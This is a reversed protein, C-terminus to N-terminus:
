LQQPGPKPMLQPQAAAPSLQEAIVSVAAKRRAQLPDSVMIHLADFDFNSVLAHAAEGMGPAAQEYQYSTNNFQHSVQAAQFRSAAKRLSQPSFAAANAPDVTMLAGGSLGHLHFRPHNQSALDLM